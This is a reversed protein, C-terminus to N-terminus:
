GIETYLEIWRPGTVRTSYRDAVLRRSAKGRQVREADDWALAETLAQQLAVVDPEILLGGGDMWDSLGTSFTTITPTRCASAELNVLGLAESRSPVAVFWADTILRAKEAEDWIPGRWEIREKRPSAAILGRLYTAYSESEVPGVLLLKSDQPLDAAGFAQILLDVGKQPVLRGVFLVYPEINGSRQCGGTTEDIADLDISNPIYEVRAWPFLKHLMDRNLLSIAHFIDVNRFLPRDMLHLYARKKLAGLASPYELAWQELHGHNTLVIPVRQAKAERVAAFQPYMWTGHVHVVSIGCSSILRRVAGAYDPSYRWSRLPRSNAVPTTEIVTGPPVTVDVDGIGVLAYQATRGDLRQCQEILSGVAFTIGTNSRNHFDTAHLVNPMKAQRATSPKVARIFSILEPSQEKDRFAVSGLGDEQCSFL